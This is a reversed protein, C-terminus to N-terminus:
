RTLLFMVVTVGAVLLALVTAAVAFIVVLCSDPVPTHAARRM